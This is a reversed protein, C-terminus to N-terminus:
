PLDALDSKKGALNDASEISPHLDTESLSWRYSIELGQYACAEEFQKQLAMAKRLMIIATQIKERASKDLHAFNPQTGLERLAPLTQRELLQLLLEYHIHSPVPIYDV